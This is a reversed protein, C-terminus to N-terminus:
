SDAEAQNEFQRNADRETFEALLEFEVHRLDTKIKGRWVTRRVWGGNRGLGGKEWVGLHSVCKEKEEAM